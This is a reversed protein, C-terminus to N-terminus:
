RFIFSYIFVSIYLVQLYIESKRFKSYERNQRYVRIFKQITRNVYQISQVPLDLQLVSQLREGAVGSQRSTWGTRAAYLLSRLNRWQISIGSTKFHIWISINFPFLSEQFFWVHMFNPILSFYVMCRALFHCCFRSYTM